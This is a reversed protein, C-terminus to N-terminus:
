LLNKIFLGNYYLRVVDVNVKVLRREMLGNKLVGQEGGSGEGV